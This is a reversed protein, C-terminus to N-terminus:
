VLLDILRTIMIQCYGVFYKFFKHYTKDQLNPSSILSSARNKFLKWDFLVLGIFPTVSQKASVSVCENEEMCMKICNLPENEQKELYHTGALGTGEYEYYVM